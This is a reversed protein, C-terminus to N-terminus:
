RARARVKRLRPRQRILVGGARVREYRVGRQHLCYVLSCPPLGLVLEYLLRHPKAHLAFHEVGFRGLVNQEVQLLEVILKMTARLRAVEFLVLLDFLKLAPPQLM